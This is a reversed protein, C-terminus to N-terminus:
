AEPQEALWARLCESVSGERGPLLEMCPIGEWLGRDLGGPAVDFPYARGGLRDGIEIERGNLRTQAVSLLFAEAVRDEGAGIGALEYEALGFKRMGATYAKRGGDGEVWEVEVHDPAELRDAAVDPLEGPLLYRQAIPDAVVGETLEALRRAAGFLFAMAPGVMAHHSEFSLQLLTWTARIRALKENSLTRGLRSRAIAETDFGAEEKSVVMLRIVTQRDKSALAYIGRQLPRQLDEKTAGEMLPALFGEVAGRAGAPNAVEDPSPLQAHGALVSLYFGKDIGYGPNKPKSFKFLRWLSM